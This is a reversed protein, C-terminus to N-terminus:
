SDQKSPTRACTIWASGFNWRTAHLRLTAIKKIDHLVKSITLPYAPYILAHWHNPMLVYGCLLFKLRERAGQIVEILLPYEDPRFSKIRPRLNVNVFFFRDSLLLRHLHSM